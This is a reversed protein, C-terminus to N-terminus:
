PSVTIPKAEESIRQSQKLFCLLVFHNQVVLVLMDNFRDEFPQILAFVAIGFIDVLQVLAFAVLRGGRRRIRGLRRAGMRAAHEEVCVDESRRVFEDDRLEFVVGGGLKSRPALRAPRAFLESGGDSLHVLTGDAEVRRQLVTDQEPGDGVGGLEQAVLCLIGGKVISHTGADVEAAVQRDIECVLWGLFDDDVLRDVPRDVARHVSDDVHIVRCHYLILTRPAVLEEADPWRGRRLGPIPTWPSAHAVIVRLPPCLM